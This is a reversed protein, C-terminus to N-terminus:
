ENNEYITKAAVEEVYSDANRIFVVVKGENPPCLPKM